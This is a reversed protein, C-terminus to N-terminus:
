SWGYKLFACRELEVISADSFLAETEDEDDCDDLGPISEVFANLGSVADARDRFRSHPIVVLSREGNRQRVLAVDAVSDDEEGVAMLVDVLRKSPSLFRFVAAFEGSHQLLTRYVADFSPRDCVEFSTCRKMLDVISSPAHAFESPVLPAQNSIIKAVLAHRSLQKQLALHPQEGSGLLLEWLVVGFSYVDASTSIANRALLEPAAWLDTVHLSTATAALSPDELIRATGFDTVKAFRSDHEGFLLVNASKLDLHLVTPKHAHCYRMAAAVERAWRLRLWVPVAVAVSLAEALSSSAREM